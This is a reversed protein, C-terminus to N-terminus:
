QKQGVWNPGHFFDQRSKQDGREDERDIRRRQSITKDPVVGRQDQAVREDSAPAKDGLTKLMEKERVCRSGIEVPRDLPQGVREIVARESKAGGAIVQGADEAM